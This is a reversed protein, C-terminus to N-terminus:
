PHPELLCQAVVAQDLLAALLLYQLLHLASPPRRRGGRTPEEGHGERDDGLVARAASGALLAARRLRDAPVRLLRVVDLGREADVAAGAAHDTGVLGDEVRVAVDGLHELALLTGDRDHVGVVAVAASHADVDAREVADGGRGVVQRGVQAADLHVLLGAHPALQALFHAAPLADVDHGPAVLLGEELGEATGGDPGLLGVSREIRGPGTAAAPDTGRTPTGAASARWRRVWRRPAAAGADVGSEGTRRSM